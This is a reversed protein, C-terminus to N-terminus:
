KCFKCFQDKIFQNEFVKLTFSDGNLLNCFLNPNLDHIRMMAYNFKQTHMRMEYQSCLSVYSLLLDETTNPHTVWPELTKIAFPYDNNEMFLAALKMSNQMSENNVDIIEKIRDICAKKLKETKPITDIYSLQKFQLKINLADITKKSLPTYYLRDIQTQLLSASYTSELPTDYIQLLLNNFAIYENDSNINHVSDVNIALEQRTIQNTHNQLWLKNMILGAYMEYYPIILQSLVDPKYKENLVQKMIYKEISLATVIDGIVIANNFERVVYPQENKGIIDYFIKMDIQAYRHNKLIPELEKNLKHKKIYEQAEEINMTDLMKYKTTKIDKKFDCWNYKAIINTNTIEAQRNKLADVISEARKQQLIENARDNGEISSYATIQLDYILFKPENLLDIFEQIDEAKYTHKKNEFPIRMSLVMSDTVPKYEFNSFTTITDALLKVERKYTGTPKIIFNKPITKCVSKSKIIVLNLEYNDSVGEPMYGLEVKFSKPAEELDAINNKFLKKSFIRKTLIGQNAMRHDIINPNKCDFQEKQLIDIALGDKKNGILKKITRVNETEFYIVNDEVTLGNHLDM